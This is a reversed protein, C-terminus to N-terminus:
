DAPAVLNNTDRTLREDGSLTMQYVEVVIVIVVLVAIAAMIIKRKSM